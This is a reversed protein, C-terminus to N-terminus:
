FHESSWCSWRWLGTLFVALSPWNHGSCYLTLDPVYPSYMAHHARKSRVKRQQQSWVSIIGTTNVLGSTSNNLLYAFRKNVTLCVGDSCLCDFGTHLVLHLVRSSHSCRNSTFCNSAVEVHVHNQSCLSQCNEVLRKFVYKDLCDSRLKVNQLTTETRSAELGV